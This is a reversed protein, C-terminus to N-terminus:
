LQGIRSLLSTNRSAPAEKLRHGRSARSISGFSQKVEEKQNRTDATRPAAFEFVMEGPQDFRQYDTSVDVVDDELTDPTKVEATTPKACGALLLGAFLFLTTRNMM